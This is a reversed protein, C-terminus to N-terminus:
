YDRNRMALRMRKLRPGAEELAKQAEVEQDQLNKGARLAGDYAMLQFFMIQRMQMPCIMSDTIADADEKFMAKWAKEGVLSLAVKATAGMETFTFPLFSDGM